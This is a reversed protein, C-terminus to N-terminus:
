KAIICSPLQTKCYHSKRTYLQAHMFDDALTAFRLIFNFRFHLKGYITLALLFLTPDSKPYLLRLQSYMLVLGGWLMPLEDMLQMGYTLTLHFLTSGVGVVIVVLFCALHRFHFHRRTQTSYIYLTALLPPLIIGLNSVTNWFEAVYPTVEYNTECWDIGFLYKAKNNTAEACYNEFCKKIKLKCVM